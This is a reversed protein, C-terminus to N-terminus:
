PARSKIPAYAVSGAIDVSGPRALQMGLVADGQVAIQFLSNVFGRGFRTGARRVTAICWGKKQVLESRTHKQRLQRFGLSSIWTGWITLTSLVYDRFDIIDMPMKSQVENAGTGM